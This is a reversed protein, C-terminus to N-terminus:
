RKTMCAYYGSFRVEQERDEWVPRLTGSCWARIDERPRGERVAKAVNSETTIYDLYFEPSLTLHTDLYEHSAVDFRSDLRMLIDPSIQMAERSPWPYRAEFQAFWDELASSRTFQRGPSFDYVVVVGGDRLIRGAEDFFRGTDIYNLSGAATILDISSDPFPLAEAAAAVFHADPAVSRAWRLMVYAPDVGIAEQAFPSLAATSIGSGCGADVVRHFQMRGLRALARELLRRHVPPRCKAYGAAMEPSEFPNPM